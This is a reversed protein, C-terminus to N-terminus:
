LGITHKRYKKDYKTLKVDFYNSVDMLKESGIGGTVAANNGDQHYYSSVLNIEEVQLKRSKFGTSDKTAQAHTQLLALMTIATLFVRKM